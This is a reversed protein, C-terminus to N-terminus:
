AELTANNDLRSGESAARDAFGPPMIRSRSSGDGTHTAHPPRMREPLNGGYKGRPHHLAEPHHTMAFRSPYGVAMARSSRGEHSAAYACRHRRLSCLARARGGDRSLPSVPRCHAPTPALGCEATRGRKNLQLAVASAAPGCSAEVSQAESGMERNAGRPWSQRSPALVTNVPWGRGEAVSRHREIRSSTASSACRTGTGAKARRLLMGDLRRVDGRRAGNGRIAVERCARASQMATWQTM